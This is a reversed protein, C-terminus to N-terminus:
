APSCSGSSRDLRLMLHLVGSPNKAAVNYLWVWAFRRRAAFSLQSSVEVSNPTAADIRAKLVDFIERTAPKDRFFGDIERM